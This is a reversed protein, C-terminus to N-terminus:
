KKLKINMKKYRWTVKIKKYNFQKFILENGEVVRGEEWSDLVDSSKNNEIYINDWIFM